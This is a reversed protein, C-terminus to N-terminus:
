RDRDIEKKELNNKREIHRNYYLIANYIYEELKCSELNPLIKNFKNKNLHIKEVQNPKIQNLVKKVKEESFEGDQSMKKLEKAQSLSPTCDNYQMIDLLVAQEDIELFSIEVAPNFAIIEKDVLELIEPILNTLRIFRQVQRGSENNDKGILDASKLKAVVQRCTKIGQHSLADMKMKYAFARESILVKERQINSDVMIITAEDDNLDRIVCKMTEKGALESAKKRRHGSIMEYKENDIKRVIAPELIGHEAISTAMNQLDENVIVRFPHDKFDIINAIPIDVVKEITVDQREEETSFLDDLSPLTKRKEERM